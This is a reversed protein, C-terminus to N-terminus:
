TYSCSISTVIGNEIFVMMTNHPMRSKTDKLPITRYWFIGIVKDSHKPYSYSDSTDYIKFLEATTMGIHIRKDTRVSKSNTIFYNIKWHGNELM